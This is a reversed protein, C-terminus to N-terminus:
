ERRKRAPLSWSIFFLRDSSAVIKAALTSANPTPTASTFTPTTAADIPSHDNIFDDICENDCLGLEKNLEYLTPFHLLEAGNDDFGFDIVHSSTNPIDSDLYTRRNPSLMPQPPLFGEIGAAKYADDSLPKNLQGFRSDCGDM